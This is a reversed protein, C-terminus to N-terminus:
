AATLSVWFRTRYVVQVPLTAPLAALVQDTNDLQFAGSIRLDVIAPDCRLLGPRYRALEHIFEGLPMQQAVLLGRAWDAGHPDVPRPLQVAEASFSLQQGAQIVQRAGANAPQVEVAGDYVQVRTIDHDRRVVFRTGLARIRGQRTQVWFPRFSEDARRPDAGTDILVEGRHLRILRQVADFKVDLATDTNLELETGDNLSLSRREGTRTAYDATWERWASHRYAVYSAPVFTMLLVLAKIARRRSSSSAHGLVPMGLQAPILGFKDNVLQARQWAREHEESSARWRALAALTQPNQREEHLRVLWGAAERVATRDLKDTQDMGNLSDAHHM